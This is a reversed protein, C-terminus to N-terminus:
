VLGRRLAVAAAEARSSVGLRRYITRLYSKITHHSLGTAAAIDAVSKGEVLLRVVNLQSPPFRVHQRAEGWAGTVVRGAVKPDVLTKGRAAARIARKLESAEVDKVVYARAGADLAAAVVERDLLGSLVVVQARLRMEAIARCLAVGDMGPLRHDVLIVAPDVAPVSELAEEATEAQGVIKMDAERGLIAALGERVVDHDDVIFVTISRGCPPQADPWPVAPVVATTV